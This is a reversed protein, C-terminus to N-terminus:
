AWAMVEKDSKSRPTAAYDTSCESYDDIRSSTFCGSSRASEGGCSMPRPNEPRPRGLDLQPFNFAVAAPHRRRGVGTTTRAITRDVQHGGPGTASLRSESSRARRVGLCFPGPRSRRVSRKHIAIFSRGPSEEAEFPQTSVGNKASRELHVVHKAFVSLRGMQCKPRADFAVGASALPVLRSGRRIGAM